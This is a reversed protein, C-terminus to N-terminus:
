CPTPPSVMNVARCHLCLRRLHLSFATHRVSTRSTATTSPSRPWSRRAPGARPTCAATLRPVLSIVLGTQDLQMGGANWRKLHRVEVFRVFSDALYDNADNDPSPNTLNTVGHPADADNWWYNFCCGPKLPAGGGPNGAGRDITLAVLSIIRLHILRSLRMM